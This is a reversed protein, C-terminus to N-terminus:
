RCIPCIANKEEISNACDGCITHGCPNLTTNKENTVCIQCIIKVDKKEIISKLQKIDGEM